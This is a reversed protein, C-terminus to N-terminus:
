DSQSNEWRSNIVKYCRCAFCQLKRRAEIRIFGPTYSIIGASQLAAADQTFNLESTRTRDQVM